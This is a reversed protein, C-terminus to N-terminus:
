ILFFFFFLYINLNFEKYFFIKYNIIKKKLCLIYNIKIISVIIFIQM